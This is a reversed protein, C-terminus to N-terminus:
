PYQYGAQDNFAVQQNLRIGFESGSPLSVETFGTRGARREREIIAYVAGGLAGLLAGSLWEEGFIGGLILGAGAGIGVWKWDFNARRAQPRSELRGDATQRVSEEDLGILSGNLGVTTGDPLTARDFATAIVGPQERTARQVETIRGDFRTGIPFRSRDGPALTASFRDGVRATSSDLRQDLRARVVTESPVVVRSVEEFAGAVREGPMTIAVRQEAPHWAVEAGLAEAAFRIPVMTRGAMIRAPADLTVPNGQVWATRSGVPLTFSRDNRSGQVTRTVPDWTVHADLSEAVDRLPIFVRGQMMVPRAERFAVPQGNVDVRIQALAPQGTLLLLAAIGLLAPMVGRRFNRSRM